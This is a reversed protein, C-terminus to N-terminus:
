GELVAHIETLIKDYHSGNWYYKHCHKCYKVRSFRVMVDKFKPGMLRSDVEDLLNNCLPCRSFFLKRDPPFQKVIQKLQLKFDPSDLFVSKDYRKYFEYDRTLLIRDDLMCKDLIETDSKCEPYLTDYGIIRMWKCTKGLMHDAMFRPM